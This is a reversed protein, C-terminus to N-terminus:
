KDKSTKWSTEVYNIFTSIKKGLISYEELLKQTSEPSYLEKIMELHSETELLSAENYIELEKYSKM